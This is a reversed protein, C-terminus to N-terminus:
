GGEFFISPEQTKDTKSGKYGHVLLNGRNIMIEFRNDETRSIIHNEAIEEIYTCRKIKPNWIGGRRKCAKVDM